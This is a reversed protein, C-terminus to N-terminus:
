SKLWSKPGVLVTALLTPVPRVEYTEFRIVVPAVINLETALRSILHKVDQNEMSGFVSALSYINYSKVEANDVKDALTRVVLNYALEDVRIMYNLAIISKYLGTLILLALVNLDQFM